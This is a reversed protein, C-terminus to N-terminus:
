NLYEEMEKIKQDVCGSFVKMGKECNEYCTLHQSYNTSNRACALKCKNIKYNFIAYHRKL